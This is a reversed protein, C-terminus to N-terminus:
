RAREFQEPTMLPECEWKEDQIKKCVKDRAISLTIPANKVTFSFEYSGVQKDGSGFTQVAKVFEDRNFYNLNLTVEEKPIDIDTHEVLFQAVKMMKSAYQHSTM